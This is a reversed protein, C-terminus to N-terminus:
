ERIVEKGKGKEAVDEMKDGLQLSSYGSDAHSSSEESQGLWAACEDQFDEFNFFDSLASGRGTNETTTPLLYPFGDVSPFNSPGLEIGTLDPCGMHGEMAESDIRQSAQQSSEPQEMGEQNSFVWPELTNQEAGITPVNHLALDDSGRQALRPFIEIAPYYAIEKQKENLETSTAEPTPWSFTSLVQGLIDRVLGELVDPGLADRITADVSEELRPRILRPLERGVHQRLATLLSEQGEGSNGRQFDVHPWHDAYSGRRTWHCSM